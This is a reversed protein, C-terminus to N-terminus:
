TNLYVLHFLIYPKLHCLVRVPSLASASGLSNDLLHSDALDRSWYHTHSIELVQLSSSMGGVGYSNYSVELGSVVATLLKLMGKWVPKRICQEDYLFFDHLM